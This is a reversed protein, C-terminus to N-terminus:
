VTVPYISYFMDNKDNFYDMKEFFKINVIIFLELSEISDRIMIIYYM